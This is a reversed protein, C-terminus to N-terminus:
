VGLKQRIFTYCGYIVAEEPKDAAIVPPIPVMPGEHKKLEAILFNGYKNFHTGIGGGIIIVDPQMVAVLEVLGLTLDKAFQQWIMPDDIESGKKGYRAVLSRGSAIDEWRVLKGDYDLLTQGAESDAFTLDIMGDIIEADGIGTGITIYLVKKYHNLYLLAEYLGALNCDNEVLINAIGLLQSIDDRIPSNHWALNGYVVGVGNKRDVKGPVACCCAYVQYDKFEQLSKRLESLFDEYKQPTPFKFQKLIQGNEDFVALLTKTGGVDIGLFM